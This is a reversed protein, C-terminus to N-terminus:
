LLAGAGDGWWLAEACSGWPFALLYLPLSRGPALCAPKGPARGPWWAARGLQGFYSEIVETRAAGSPKPQPWPSAFSAGMKPMFSLAADVVQYDLCTVNYHLIKFILIIAYLRTIFLETSFYM